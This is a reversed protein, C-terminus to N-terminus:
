KYVQFSEYIILIIREENDKYLYTIEQIEGSLKM